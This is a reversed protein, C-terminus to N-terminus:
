RNGSAATVLEAWTVPLGHIGVVRAGQLGRKQLSEVLNAAFPFGPPPPANPPPPNYLDAQILIKEAPLYVVLMNGNHPNGPVHYIEITRVTDRM